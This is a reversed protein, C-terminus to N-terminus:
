FWFGDYVSVNEKGSCNTHILGVCIYGESLAFVNRPTM